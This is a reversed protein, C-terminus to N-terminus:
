FIHHHHHVIFPTDHHHDFCFILDLSLLQSILSPNPLPYNYREDWLAYAIKLSFVLWSMFICMNCSLLVHSTWLIGSFRPMLIKPSFDKVAAMLYNLSNTFPSIVPFGTIWYISGTNNVSPSFMVLVRSTTLKILYFLPPWM